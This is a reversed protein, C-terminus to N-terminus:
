RPGFTVKVTFLSDGISQIEVKLIKITELNCFDKLENQVSKYTILYKKDKMFPRIEDFKKQTDKTYGRGSFFVTSPKVKKNLISSDVSFVFPCNIDPLTEKNEKGTKEKQIKIKDIQGLSNLSGITLLILIIKKM